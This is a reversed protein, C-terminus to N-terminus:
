DNTFPWKPRYMEFVADTSLYDMYGLRALLRAQTVDFRGDRIAGDAIHVGVVQGKVLHNDTENGDMDIVTEVSILKCEMAAAAEAVRPASVVECQGRTLGAIDFESVDTPAAASSRNMAEALDHTAINVVFEGSEKAARAADKIGVSSFMVIPPAASIAMFFSYPSLNDRGNSDRTSIWGIPRPSVLAKFPDHPLGHGDEVRYFM